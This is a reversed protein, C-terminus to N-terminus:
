KTNLNSHYAEDSFTVENSGPTPLAHTIQLEEEAHLDILNEDAERDVFDGSADQLRLVIPKTYHDQNRRIVQAISGDSLQVFSGIPFLSQVKLLARVVNSDVFNERAQRILCEMASYRMMAPRYPRDSTMGVFADAVQLIRALPHISQGRRGRPYGTGNMREHVQYAVVPVVSSLASVHQLMELSYIPHKKIELMEIPNLKSKSTRIELSVKMMGWDHVLGAIALNRINDADLDMEIGIAMALLSVEMSRSAIDDDQFQDIVSTLTNDTDTTMEKLYHAAMKSVISGNIKEGYMVEGIMEGLAVGNSQHQEILKQRKEQNYGKRGLFVVNNKVAPGDNKLAMLGGDIITDIRKTLDADLGFSNTKLNALESNMTVRKKDEQSIRVEPVGHQIIARKREQTIESNEALLLVGHPDYIPFNMKRGVILDNVSVTVLGDDQTINEAVQTSSM